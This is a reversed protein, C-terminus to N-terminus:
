QKGELFTLQEGISRQKADLYRARIDSLEDWIALLKADDSFDMEIVIAGHGDDVAITWEIDLEELVDCLIQGLVPEWTKKITVKEM